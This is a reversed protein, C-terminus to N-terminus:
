RGSLLIIKELREMIKDLSATKDLDAKVKALEERLRENDERLRDAEKTEDILMELLETRTLRHLDEDLKNGEGKGSKGAAPLKIGKFMSGFKTGANSAKKGSEEVGSTNQETRNEAM